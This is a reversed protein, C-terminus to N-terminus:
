SVASIDLALYHKWDGINLYVVYDDQLFTPMRRVGRQTIHHPMGPLVIRAIRGM